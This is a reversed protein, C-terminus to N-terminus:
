KRKELVWLTKYRIAGGMGTRPLKRTLRVRYGRFLTLWIRQLPSETTITEDSM